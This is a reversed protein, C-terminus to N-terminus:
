VNADATTIHARSTAVAHPQWVQWRGRLANGLAIVPVTLLRLAWTLSQRLGPRAVLVAAAAVAAAVALGWVMPGGYTLALWALGAAGLIFLYPVIIRTLKHLVLDIWIANRWPVLIEPMWACLQLLGTMTRVKRDFHQERTFQRPDVAIAEECHGVRWGRTTLGMTVFLDDCILEAPMPRWLERRLSYIAGSVCIISHVTSQRRRLEYEYKWYRGMLRGDAPSQVMGSVAGVGDASLARVLSPIAERTFSQRADAFVLVEGRAIRVAANLAAAKGGPQDGPVVTALAGLRAAVDTWSHPARADVAVVIDMRDAPYATERLNRVRAELVAPEDRSAVVVTVHPTPGRDAEPPIAGARLADRRLAARARVILPYGVLTIALLGFSATVAWVVAFTV